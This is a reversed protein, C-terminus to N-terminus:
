GRIRMELFPLIGMIQLHLMWERNKKILDKMEVEKFLM